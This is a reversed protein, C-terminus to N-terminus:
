WAERGAREMEQWEQEDPNEPADPDCEALLEALTYKPRPRKEIVLRGGDVSLAVKTNASLGLAELLAKPIALMVSGGVNRLTSTVM